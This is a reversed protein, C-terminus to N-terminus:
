FKPNPDLPGQTLQAPSPPSHPPVTSLSKTQPQPKPKPQSKPKAKNHVVKIFGDDALLSAAEDEDMEVAPNQDNMPGFEDMKLQTSELDDIM